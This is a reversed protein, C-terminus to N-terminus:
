QAKEQRLAAVLERLEKNEDKQRGLEALADNLQRELEAVRAVLEAITKDSAAAQARLQERLEGNERSLTNNMREVDAIRGEGAAIRTLATDLRDRYDARMKGAEAWLDAAESTEIKGSMKRSAALYGFLAAVLAGFIGLLSIQETRSM